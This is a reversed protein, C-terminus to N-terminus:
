VSRISKIVPVDFLDAPACSAWQKYNQAVDLEMMHGTVSTVLMTCEQGFINYQFEFINNYKSEGKRQICTYTSSGLVFSKRMVTTYRGSSLIKSIEKAVSPKEAVSLVRVAM